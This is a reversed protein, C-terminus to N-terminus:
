MFEEIVYLKNYKPIYIIYLKDHSDINDTKTYWYYKESFNPRKEHDIKLYNLIEEINNEIEENKESNFKGIDEQNLEKKYDFVHYRYGDGLVSPESEVFYSEERYSRPLSIGWNIKIIIGYDIPWISLILIFVIM